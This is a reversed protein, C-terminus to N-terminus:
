QQTLVGDPIFEEVGVQRTTFYRPINLLTNLSSLVHVVRLM